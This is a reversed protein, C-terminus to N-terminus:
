FSINILFPRMLLHSSSEGVNIHSKKWFFNLVGKFERLSRAGWKSGWQRLRGVETVFNSQLGAASSFEWGRTCSVRERPVNGSLVSSNPPYKFLECHSFGSGDVWPITLNLYGQRSFNSLLFASPLLQPDPKCHYNDPILTYFVDSILNLMVAFNPFWSFVVVVRNYRGYGGSQPFIKTEYDMQPPALASGAADTAM